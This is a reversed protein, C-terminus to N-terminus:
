VVAVSKKWQQSPEELKPIFNLFVNNRNVLMFNLFTALSLIYKNNNRIFVM